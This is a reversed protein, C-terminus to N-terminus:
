LLRINLIKNSKLWLVVLYNIILSIFYKSFLGNLNNFILINVSKIRLVILNNFFLHNDTKSLLNYLLTFILINNDSCLSDIFIHIKLYWRFFPAPGLPGIKKVSM